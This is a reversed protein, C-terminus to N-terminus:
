HEVADQYRELAILSPYWLLICKLLCLGLLLPSLHQWFASCLFVIHPLLNIVPM